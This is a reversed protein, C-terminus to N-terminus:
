ENVGGGKVIEIVKSIRIYCDSERDEEYVPVDEYKTETKLQEVVKDVDYATPLDSVDDILGYADILTTEDTGLAGDVCKSEILEMVEKRSILDSMKKVKCPLRIFLGQKEKEEYMKLKDLAINIKCMELADPMNVIMEKIQDPTIGADEYAAIRECVEEQQECLKDKCDGVGYCPKEFCRPYYAQGNEKRATLRDM